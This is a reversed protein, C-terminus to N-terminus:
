SWPSISCFHNPTQSGRHRFMHTHHDWYGLSPPSSTQNKVIERWHEFRITGILGINWGRPTCLTDPLGCCYWPRRRAGLRSESGFDTPFRGFNTAWPCRESGSRWCASATDRLESLIERDGPLHTHIGASFDYIKKCKWNKWKYFRDLTSPTIKRAVLFMYRLQLFLQFAITLEKKSILEGFIREESRM